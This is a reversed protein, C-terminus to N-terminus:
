TIISLESVDVVLVVLAQVVWLGLKLTVEYAFCCKRKSPSSKLRLREGARVCTCLCRLVSSCRAARSTRLVFLVCTDERRGAYTNRVHEYM